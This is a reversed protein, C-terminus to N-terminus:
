CAPNEGGAQKCKCLAGPGMVRSAVPTSPCLPAGCNWNNCGADKFQPVRSAPLGTHQYTHRCLAVTSSHPRAGFVMDDFKTPYGGSEEAVNWKSLDGNFKSAGEFQSASPACAATLSRLPAPPRAPPSPQPSAAVERWSPCRAEEVEVARPQSPVAHM